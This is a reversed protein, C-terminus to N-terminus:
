PKLTFTHCQQTTSNLPESGQLGKQVYQTQDGGAMSTPVNGFGRIDQTSHNSKNSGNLKKCLM